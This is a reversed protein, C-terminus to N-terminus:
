SCHCDDTRRFFKEYVVLTDGAEGHVFLGAKSQDQLLFGSAGAQAEKAIVNAKIDAMYAAFGEKTDGGIVCADGASTKDATTLKDEDDYHLQYCTAMEMGIGAMELFDVLREPAVVRAVHQPAEPVQALRAKLTEIPLTTTTDM